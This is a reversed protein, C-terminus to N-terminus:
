YRLTVATSLITCWGFRDLWCHRTALSHSVYVTSVWTIISNQNRQRIIMLLWQILWWWQLLACVLGRSGGRSDSNIVSSSWPKVVNEQEQVTQGKVRDRASQAEKAKRDCEREKAQCHCYGHGAAKLKVQHQVFQQLSCTSFSSCGSCYVYKNNKCMQCWGGRPKKNARCNTRVERASKNIWNSASVRGGIRLGM